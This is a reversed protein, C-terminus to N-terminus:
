GHEVAIASQERSSRRIADLVAQGAVGDAFTAAIPEAAVSNGLMRDRLVTYLRTYPSLDMGTSHWM